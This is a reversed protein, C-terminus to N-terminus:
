QQKIELITTSMFGSHQSMFIVCYESPFVSWVLICELLIRVARLLLQGPPEGGPMGGPASRGPPPM